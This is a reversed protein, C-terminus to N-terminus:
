HYTRSPVAACFSNYMGRVLRLLPSKARGSIQCIQMLSTGAGLKMKLPPITLARFQRLCLLRNICMGKILRLWPSKAIHGKSWRANIADIGPAIWVDLKRQMKWRHMTLARFQRLCLLPNTCMGKIRAVLSKQLPTKPM